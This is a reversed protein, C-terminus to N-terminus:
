NNECFKRFSFEALDELDPIDGKDKNESIMQKRMADWYDSALSYFDDGKSNQMSDFDDYMEVLSAGIVAGYIGAYHSNFSRLRVNQVKWEVSSRRCKPVVDLIPQINHW